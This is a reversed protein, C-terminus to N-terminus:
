RIHFPSIKIKLLSLFSFPPPTFLRQNNKKVLYRASNISYSFLLILHHFQHTQEHSKPDGYVDTYLMIIHYVDWSSFEYHPAVKFIRVFILFGSMGDVEIGIIYVPKLDCILLIFFEDQRSSILPFLKPGWM